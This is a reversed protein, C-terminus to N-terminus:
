KIGVWLGIYLVKHRYGWSPNSKRAGSHPVDVKFTLRADCAIGARDVGSFDVFPLLFGTAFVFGARVAAFPEFHLPQEDPQCSAALVDCGRAVDGLILTRYILWELVVALFVVLVLLSAIAAAIELGTSTAAGLVVVAGRVIGPVLFVSGM